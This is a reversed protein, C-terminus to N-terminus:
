VDGVLINARVWFYGISHEKRVYDDLNREHLIQDDGFFDEVTKVENETDTVIVEGNGTYSILM